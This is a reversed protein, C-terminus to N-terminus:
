DGTASSPARESEDPTVHIDRGEMLAARIVDARQQMADTQTEFRDALHSNGRERHRKTLQRSLSVSEELSAGDV